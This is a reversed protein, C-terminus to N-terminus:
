GAPTSLMNAKLLGEGERRRKEALGLATLPLLFITAQPRERVVTGFNGM